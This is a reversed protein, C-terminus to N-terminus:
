NLRREDHPISSSLQHIALFTSTRACQTQEVATEIIHNVDKHSFFISFYEGEYPGKCTFKRQFVFDRGALSGGRADLGHRRHLGMNTCCVSSPVVEPLDLYVAKLM